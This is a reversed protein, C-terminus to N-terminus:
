NLDIRSGNIDVNGDATITINGTARITLNGTERDHEVYSGDAFDTRTLDAADGNPPYAERWLSCVIVAQRLDGAPSLILVQEGVEPAWWTRDPGARRVGWQLWTTVVPTGDDQEDYKVRARAADADLEYVTGKRVINALRRQLEVVAWRLQQDATEM